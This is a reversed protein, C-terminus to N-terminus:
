PKVAKRNWGWAWFLWVGVQQLSWIAIWTYPRLRFYAGWGARRARWITTIEFGNKGIRM